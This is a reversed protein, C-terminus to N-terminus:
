TSTATSARGLHRPLARVDAALITALWARAAAACGSSDDPVFQAVCGRAIEPVALPLAEELPITAEAKLKLDALAENGPDASTQAPPLQWGGAWPSNPKANSIKLRMLAHQARWAAARAPTPPSTSTPAADGLLRVESRVDGPTTIRAVLGDAVASGLALRLLFAWLEDRLAQRPDPPLLVPQAGPAPAPPPPRPPLSDSLVAEAFQCATACVAPQRESGLWPRLVVSYVAYADALMGDRVLLALTEVALARVSTVTRASQLLPHVIRVFTEATSPTAHERAMDRGTERM